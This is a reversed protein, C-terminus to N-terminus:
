RSHSSSQGGPRSSPTGRVSPGRAVQPAVKSGHRGFSTLVLELLPLAHLVQGTRIAADWLPEFKKWGASYAIHRCRDRLGGKTAGGRLISGWRYFERYAHWYGGELESAELRAPRFVVHRTDYLDWERHLLRGEAEIRQYLATDPYPTLISRPRRLVRGSRGRSPENSCTRGM